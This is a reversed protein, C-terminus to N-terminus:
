NLIRWSTCGSGCPFSVRNRSSLNRIIIKMCDILQIRYEDRMAPPIFYNVIEPIRFFYVNSRCLPYWYACPMSSVLSYITKPQQSHALRSLLKCRCLKLSQVTTELYHALIYLTGVITKTHTSNNNKKKKKKKKKKRISEM